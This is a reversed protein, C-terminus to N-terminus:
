LKKELEKVEVIVYGDKVKEKRTVRFEDVQSDDEFLGANGLSDFIIKVINDLDRRRKDPVYVQIDIYVSGSLKKTDPTLLVIDAVAKKYKRGTASLIRRGKFTAYLHNLSPPYPFKFIM